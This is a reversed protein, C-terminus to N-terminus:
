LLAILQEATSDPTAILTDIVLDAGSILLPEIKHKDQRIAAQEAESQGYPNTTRSAIRDLMVEIPAVFVVVHDFRDYFAGQNPRCGDVFLKAHEYQDLLEGIRDEDWIWENDPTSRDGDAPVCWGSDDTEAIAYGRQQLIRMVTSKGTGSMGTILIKTM